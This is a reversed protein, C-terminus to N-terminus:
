SRHRGNKEYGEFKGWNYEILNTYFLCIILYKRTVDSLIINFILIIKKYYFFGM